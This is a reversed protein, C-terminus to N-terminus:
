GTVLPALIVKLCVLSSPVPIVSRYEADDSVTHWCECISKMTHPIIQNSNPFLSTSTAGCRRSQRDHYDPLWNPVDMAEMLIMSMTLLICIAQKTEKVVVNSARSQIMQSGATTSRISAMDIKMTPIQGWTSNRPGSHTMVDVTAVVAVVTAKKVAMVVEAMAQPIIITMTGVIIVVKTNEQVLSPAVLNGVTDQLAMDVLVAMAVEGMKREVRLLVKAAMDALRATLRLIKLAVMGVLIAATLLHKDAMDLLNTVDTPAEEMGAKEKKGAMAQAKTTAGNADAQVMSMEAPASLNLGRQGMVALAVMDARRRVALAILTKVLSRLMKVMAELAMRAEVLKKKETISVDLIVSKPAMARLGAPITDQVISKHETQDMHTLHSMLRLEVQRDMAELGTAEPPALSTSTKKGAHRIVTMGARPVMHNLLRDATLHSKAVDM